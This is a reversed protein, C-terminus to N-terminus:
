HVKYVRVCVYVVCVCARAAILIIICKIFVIFVYTCAYDLDSEDNFYDGFRNIKINRKIFYM